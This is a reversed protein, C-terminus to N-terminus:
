SAPPYAVTQAIIPREYRGLLMADALKDQRLWGYPTTALGLAACALYVNQVIAGAAAGILVDRQGNPVPKMRALDVVYILDLPATSAFDRYGGAARVDIPRHLELRHGACRYRYVGAPLAVYVDIADLGLPSVATRGVTAPHNVGCAAWLLAGLVDDPLVAVTFDRRTRRGHLADLLSADFKAAPPAFEITLRPSSLAGGVPVNTDGASAWATNRRGAHCALRKVSVAV